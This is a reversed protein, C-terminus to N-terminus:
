AQIPSKEAFHEHLGNSLETINTIETQVDKVSDKQTSISEAISTIMATNEETTAVLTEIEGHIQEFERKVNEIVQYEERVVNHAEGTTAEIGEFVKLLEIMKEVGGAAAQAGANIKSSVDHTSSTLGNLIAKINDAASSSQESLNRIEDAVVGFGKGHEGARAAEISANLSLLNTQSAIANIEGLIDTIRNMEELLGNTAGQASSVTESMEELDSKVNEAETNGAKVALDVDGFSNELQQALEYNRDIEENATTIKENVSITAHTTSEVVSGMQDASQSVSEAQAALEKVGTECDAIAQNLNEAINNAIEGNEKVVTLTEETQELLHRGRTTANILVASTMFLFVVKTLAGTTTYNAGDIIEPKILACLLAVGGVPITYYFVYRRDFYVAMMALLVFNAIFAISNGGQIAAYVITGISPAVSICLAKYLDNKVFFKGLTSVIGSCVLVAVGVMTRANIGYGIMTLLSLIVVGILVITYNQKHIREM